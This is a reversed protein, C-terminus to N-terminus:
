DYQPNHSKSIKENAEFIFANIQPKPLIQFMIGFEAILFSLTLKIEWEMKTFFLAPM